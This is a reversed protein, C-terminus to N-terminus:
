DYCTMITESESIIYAEIENLICMRGAKTISVAIQVEGFRDM